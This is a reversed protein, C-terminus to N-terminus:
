VRGPGRRHVGGRCRCSDSRNSETEGDVILVVAASIKRPNLGIRRLGDLIVKINPTAGTPKSEM